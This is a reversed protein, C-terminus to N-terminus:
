KQGAVTQNYSVILRTAVIRQFCRPPDSLLDLKAVNRTGMLKAHEVSFYSSTKTNEKPMKSIRSRKRFDIHHCHR